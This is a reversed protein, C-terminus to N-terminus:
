ACPPFFYNSEYVANEELDTCHVANRIKDVGFQARLSQPRIQRALEPDRPGVLARLTEVVSQASRVEMVLCMGAGLAACTETFHQIAGRYVQFFESPNSVTQLRMASIELDLGLIRSVIKGGCEAFAHPLVICVSCFSGIALSSWQKEKFFYDLEREAFSKSASAHVLDGFQAGLANWAGVADEGSLAMVVSADGTLLNALYGAEPHGLVFLEASEKSIRVMELKTISLGPFAQIAEMIEGIRHYARPKIIACTACFKERTLEDFYDKILINRGFLTVRNGVYLSCVDLSTATKKLFFGGPKSCRFLEVECSSPYYVLKLAHILGSQPDVWETIFSLVGCLMFSVVVGVHCAFM